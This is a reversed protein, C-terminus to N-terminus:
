NEIPVLRKLEEAWNQVLVLHTPPPASEGEEIMVFRQGGRAVDYQGTALSSREFLARPKGLSIEDGAQVDVAMVKDGSRYFLERGNPNWGPHRGGGISVTARAGPGPFPRVYVEFRGSEDSVYAVWRGNPSFAPDGENFKEQLFPRTEPEGEM